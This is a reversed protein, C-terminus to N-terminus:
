EYNLIIKVLDEFGPQFDTEKLESLQVWQPESAEDYETQTVIPKNKSIPKCYHFIGYNQYAEDLPDYYFFREIIKIFDGVSVKIGCEEMTERKIAEEITEGIEIEGGPFFYKGSTRNVVLLIKGNEITIGYGSVRIRFKEKPLQIKNGNISHAEIM